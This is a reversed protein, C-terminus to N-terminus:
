EFFICEPNLTLTGRRRGREVLSPDGEDEWKGRWLWYSLRAATERSRRAGKLKDGEHKSQVRAKTSM